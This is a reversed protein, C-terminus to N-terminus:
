VLGWGIEGGFALVWAAVTREGFVSKGFGWEGRGAIAGTHTRLESSEDM